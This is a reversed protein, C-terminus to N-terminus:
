KYIEKGIYFYPRDGSDRIIPICQTSFSNGKINLLVFGQQWDMM